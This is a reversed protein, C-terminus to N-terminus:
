NSCGTLRATISWLVQDAHNNGGVWWSQSKEDVESLIQGVLEEEEGTTVQGLFIISSMYTLSVELLSQGQQSIHSHCIHTIYTLSVEPLSQGQQSIHSHYIHTVGRTFKPRRTHLDEQRSVLKNRERGPYVIILSWESM